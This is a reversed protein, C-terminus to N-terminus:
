LSRPNTLAMINIPTLSLALAQHVTSNGLVQSDVLTPKRSHLRLSSFGGSVKGFTTGAWIAENSVNNIKTFQQFLFEAVTTPDSVPLGHL